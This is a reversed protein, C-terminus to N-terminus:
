YSNSQEQSLSPIFMKLQDNCLVLCPVLFIDLIAIKCPLGVKHDVKYSSRKIVLNNWIAISNLIAHNPWCKHSHLPHIPVNQRPKFNYHPPHEALLLSFFIIIFKINVGGGQKTCIFVMALLQQFFLNM